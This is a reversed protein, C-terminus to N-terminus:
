LLGKTSPIGKVRSDITTAKDLSKGLGKFIAEIIHHFNEGALLRVHLTIGANTTFARLFEEVLELDFEGVKTKPLDVSFALTSRGSVDIAILVLAEGMPLIAQGYRSISSKDELAKATAQGLCIGIDEVTHHFDVNVDGTAKLELDFLGHKAFLELMHNLFGVPTEIKYNGTGDLSMKLEISTEKTNRSIEATRKPM